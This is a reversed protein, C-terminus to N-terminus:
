SPRFKQKTKSKFALDWRAHRIQIQIKRQCLSEGSSEHDGRQDRYQEEYVISRFNIGAHRYMM